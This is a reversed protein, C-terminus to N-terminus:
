KIREVQISSNNKGSLRYGSVLGKSITIEEGVKLRFRNDVHKQEWIQGNDLLIVLEGYPKSRLDAVTAMFEKPGDDKVGFNEGPVATKVPEATAAPAVTPVPTAEVPQPVAAPEAEAEPKPASAAEAVVVAAAVTVPAVAVPASSPTSAAPVADVAAPAPESEAAAVAAAAVVPVAVAAEIPEAKLAAVERDYCSLRRMVDTESACALLQPPLADAATQARLVPWSMITTVGFLAAILMTKRKM